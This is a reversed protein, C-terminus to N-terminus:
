DDPKPEEDDGNDPKPEEDGGEDPKPEEDGGEDPKPEEDGGEEPKPEEDGGEDPKPEEEDGKDTEKPEDDEKGSEEAGTEKPEDEGGETEKPEADGSESAEADGSETAEADGSETAEADGSGTAEADGTEEAEASETPEADDAATGSAESEGEDDGTPTILATGNVNRFEASSTALASPVGSLGAASASTSTSDGGGKGKTLFVIAVAIGAAIIIFICASAVVIIGINRTRKPNERGLFGVAVTTSAMAPTVGPNISLDDKNSVSTYGGNTSWLGAPQAEDDRTAQMYSASALTKNALTEDPLLDVTIVLRLPEFLAESVAVPPFYSKVLSTPNSIWTCPVIATVDSPEYNKVTQGRGTLERVFEHHQLLRFDDYAM